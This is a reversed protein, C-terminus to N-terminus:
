EKGTERRVNDAKRKNATRKKKEEKKGKMDDGKRSIITGYRERERVGGEKRKRFM